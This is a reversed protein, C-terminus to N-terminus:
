LYFDLLQTPQPSPDDSSRSNIDFTKLEGGIVRDSGAAGLVTHLDDAFAEFRADWDGMPDSAGKGRPDWAIVRAMRGLSEMFGALQPLDWMLDIPFRTQTVALDIPGEGFVTFALYAGDREVFRVEADRVGTLRVRAFRHRLRRDGRDASAVDCTRPM